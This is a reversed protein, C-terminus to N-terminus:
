VHCFKHTDFVYANAAIGIQLTVIAHRRFFVLLQAGAILPAIREAFFNIDFTQVMWLAHKVEGFTQDPAFVAIGLDFQNEAAIELTHERGNPRNSLLVPDTPGLEGILSFERIWM